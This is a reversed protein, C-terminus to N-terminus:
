NLSTFHQAFFEPFIRWTSNVQRACFLSWPWLLDFTFFFINFNTQQCQIKSINQLIISLPWLVELNNLGRTILDVYDGSNAKPPETYTLKHMQRSKDSRYRAWDKFFLLVTQNLHEGYQTTHWVWTWLRNKVQTAPNNYLKPCINEM